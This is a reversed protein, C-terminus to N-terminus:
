STARKKGPRVWPERARRISTKDSSDRAAIRLQEAIRVAASDWGWRHAVAEHLLDPTLSIEGRAVRVICTAISQPNRDALFGTEGDVVTERYGGQAVAVVPTGCCMSELASLGFPELRAACVTVTADRYISVLEADTIGRHLVLRTGGARALEDLEAGYGRREREYVIHVQAEVGLEKAARGASELVIDHGKVPHLAGVSVVKIAKARDALEVRDRAGGLDPHLPDEPAFLESDVGLYCVVAEIGYAAALMDASFRSNCLVRDVAAVARRDRRRSLLEYPRRILALLSAAVRKEDAGARIQVEFGVRRTEQAYFVCPVTLWEAIPVTFSFRCAHVFAVDYGRDNIDQAMKRQVRRMAEGGVVAAGIRGLHPGLARVASPLQYTTTASVLRGIDLRYTGEGLDAFRDVPGLEADFLDVQLDAPLRKVVEHLARLAGGPPLAHFLAVRLKSPVPDPM